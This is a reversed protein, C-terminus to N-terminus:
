LPLSLRCPSHFHSIFSTPPHSRSIIQPVATDSTCNIEREAAATNVLTSFYKLTAQKIWKFNLNIIKQMRLFAEKIDNEAQYLKLWHKLNRTLIILFSSTCISNTVFHLLQAKEVAVRAMFWCFKRIVLSFQLFFILKKLVGSIFAIYFCRRIIIM